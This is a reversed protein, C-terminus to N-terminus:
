KTENKNRSLCEISHTLLRLIFLTCYGNFAPSLRQKLTMFRHQKRKKIWRSFCVIEHLSIVNRLSFPCSLYSSKLQKRQSLEIIESDRIEKGNCVLSKLRLSKQFSTRFIKRTENFQILTGECCSELILILKLQIEEKDLPWESTYFFRNYYPSKSSCVM